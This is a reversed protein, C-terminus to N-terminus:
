TSIRATGTTRTPIEQTSEACNATDSFLTSGSYLTLPLSYLEPRVRSFGIHLEVTSSCPPLPLFCISIVEGKDLKWISKTYCCEWSFVIKSNCAVIRVGPISQLKAQLMARHSQILLCRSAFYVALKLCLGKTPTLKFYTVIKKSLFLKNTDKHMKLTFCQLHNKVKNHDFMPVIKYGTLLEAMHRSRKHTITTSNM